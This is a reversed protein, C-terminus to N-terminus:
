VRPRVATARRRGSRHRHNGPADTDPAVGRRRDADGDGAPAGAAARVECQRDPRLGTSGARLPDRHVASRHLPRAAMDTFRRFGLCQHPGASRPHRPRSGGCGVVDRRCSFRPRRRHRGGAQRAPHLRGVDRGVGVRVARRDPQCRVGRRGAPARGCLRSRRLRLRTTPTLGAGGGSDSRPVRHRGRHRAPDTCDGRLHRHEHRHDRPRVDPRRRGSAPEAQAGRGGGRWWVRCRRRGGPALRGDGARDDRVPLRRHRRRRIALDGRGRLRAPDVM